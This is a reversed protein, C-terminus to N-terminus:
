VAAHESQHFVANGIIEEIVFVIELAAPVNVTEVVVPLTEREKGLRDEVGDAREIDKGVNQVAVVPLRSCTYNIETREIIPTDIELFDFRHEGNMIYFILAFEAVFRPAIQEAERRVDEIIDFEVAADVKHLAGDFHRIRDAGDAGSIRVFDFIREERVPQVAYDAAVFM